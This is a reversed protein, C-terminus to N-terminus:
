GRDSCGGPIIINKLDEENGVTRLDIFKLTSVVNQKLEEILEENLALGKGELELSVVQKSHRHMALVVTLM